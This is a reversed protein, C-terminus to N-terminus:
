DTSYLEPLLVIHAQFIQMPSQGLLRLFEYAKLFWWTAKGKICNKHSLHDWPKPVDSSSPMLPSLALSSALTELYVISYHLAVSCKIFLCQFLIDEGREWCYYSDLDKVTLHCHQQSLLAGAELRQSKLVGWAVHPWSLMVIDSTAPGRGWIRSDSHGSSKFIQRQPSLIQQGDTIDKMM